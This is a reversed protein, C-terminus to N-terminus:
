HDLRYFTHFRDGLDYERVRSFGAEAAYRRVTQPRMVTGIGAADPGVLAAPLCHLVSTAYQFREIDDGPAHFSNAARSDLVLVTGSDGSLRRCSRLVDAPRSLEHLADFLCVLDFAPGALDAADAATLTIRKELGEARVRIAAEAVSEPDLDVATLGATPYARALAISAWGAGCGLDAIRGGGASLTRHVDPLYRRIWGALQHTYAGRNAGGHGQRWDAGFVEAPVGDGTRFAELLSPLAGAVGGLPLMATAVLSLPDASATLVREHGSPLRYVRQPWDLADDDVQLLGACAQQELWERLYRAALGTRGAFQAVTAPGGEHLEQYLGLKVGLYAVFSEQTALMARFLRLSLASAAADADRSTATTSTGTM